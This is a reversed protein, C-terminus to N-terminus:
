VVKEILMGKLDNIEKIVSHDIMQYGIRIVLGGILDPDVAYEAEIKKKTSKELEAVLAQKQGDTLPVASSIYASDIHAAKRYMERFTGYISLISSTRRKDILVKLFNLLYSNIEDTFIKDLMQRKDVKSIKPAKLVEFFDPEEKLLNAFESFDEYIAELSETQEAVEFLAEAYVEAVLKAM